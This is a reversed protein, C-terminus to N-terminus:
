AAGGGLWRSVLVDHPKAYDISGPALDEALTELVRDPWRLMEEWQNSKFLRENERITERTVAAVIKGLNPRTM